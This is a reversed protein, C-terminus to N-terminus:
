GFLFGGLVCLCAAVEPSVGVPELVLPFRALPAADIRAVRVTVKGGRLPYLEKLRRWTAATDAMTVGGDGRVATPAVPLLGDWQAGIDVLIGSCYAGGQIVADEFVDGVRLDLLGPKAAFGPEDPNRLGRVPAAEVERARERVIEGSVWGGEPCTFWYEGDEAVVVDSFLAELYQMGVSRELPPAGPTAGQHEAELRLPAHRGLVTEIMKGTPDLEEGTNTIRPPPPTSRTRPHTATTQQKISLTTLALPM